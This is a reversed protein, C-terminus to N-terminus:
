RSNEAVGGPRQGEGLRQPLVAIAVKPVDQLVSGRDRGEVYRRGGKERNLDVLHKEGMFCGCACPTRRRGAEAEVAGLGRLRPSTPARM